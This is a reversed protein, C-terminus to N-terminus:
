NFFILKKQLNKSFNFKYIVKGLVRSISHSSKYVCSSTNKNDGTLYIRDKEFSLIRKIILGNKKTNVVVVDGIRIIFLKTTVVFDNSEVFPIM